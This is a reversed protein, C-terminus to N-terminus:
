SAERSIRWAGRPDEIVVHWRGRPLGSLEAEYAGPAVPVLRLRMDYGARTALALHVFLAAPAEGALEVRLRDSSLRV